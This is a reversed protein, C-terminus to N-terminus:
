PRGASSRPARASSCANASPRPESGAAIHTTMLPHPPNTRPPNASSPGSASGNRLGGRTGQGARRGGSQQYICAAARCGSMVVKDVESAAESAISRATPCPNEQKTQVRLSRIEPSTTRTSSRRGSSAGDTSRMTKALMTAEATVTHPSSRSGRTGTDGTRRSSTKLASKANEPPANRLATVNGTTCSAVFYAHFDVEEASAQSCAARQDVQQRQTALITRRESEHDPAQWRNHPEM